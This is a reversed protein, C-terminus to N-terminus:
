EKKEPDKVGDGRGPSSRRRFFDRPPGEPLPGAPLFRKKSGRNRTSGTKCREGEGGASGSRKRVETTDEELTPGTGGRPAGMIGQKWKRDRRPRKGGACDLSWLRMTADRKLRPVRRGAAQVDEGVGELGLAMRNRLAVRAPELTEMVADLVLFHDGTWYLHDKTAV